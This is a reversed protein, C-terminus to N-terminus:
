LLLSPHRFWYPTGKWSCVAWEPFLQFTSPLVQYGCLPSSPSIRPFRCFGACDLTKTHFLLPKKCIKVSGAKYIFYVLIGSYYSRVPRALSANQNIYITPFPTQCCGCSKMQCLIVRTRPSSTRGHQLRDAPAPLLNSPYPCGSLHPLQPLALETMVWVGFTWIRNRSFHHPLSLLFSHGEM